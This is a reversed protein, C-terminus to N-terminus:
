GRTRRPYILEYIRDAQFGDFLCIADTTSTLSTRGDPCRGFAWHDAPIPTRGGQVTDRVTLMSNATNTDAAEYPWFQANGKLPLTYGSGAYEIRIPAVIPSGNPKVAVPLAAGLRTPTTEVDGAWGADVWTYGLRFVLGDTSDAPAEPTLPPWSAHAIEINNGRNNIGYFIKHNGRAMVVPKIIFFPARFEVLGKANRRAKDLNVIVANFPDHPDVEMYVTGDLREFAGVDGFTKGDAFPRTKEVVFRVVRAETTDSVVASLLLVLALRMRITRM